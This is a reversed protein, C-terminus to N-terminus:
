VGFANGPRQAVPGVATHWDFGSTYGGGPYRLLKMGVAQAAALVEPVPAATKPNWLGEAGPDGPPVETNHGFILPNVPGNSHKADVTITATLAAHAFVAPVLLQVACCLLLGIHYHRDHMMVPDGNM